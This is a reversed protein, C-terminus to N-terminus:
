QFIDSVSEKVPVLGDRLSHRRKQTEGTSLDAYGEKAAGSPYAISGLGARKLLEENRRGRGEQRKSRRATGHSGRGM